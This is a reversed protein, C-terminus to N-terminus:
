NYRQNQFQALLVANKKNKMKNYVKKKCIYIYIYIDINSKKKVEYEHAFKLNADKHFGEVTREFDEM